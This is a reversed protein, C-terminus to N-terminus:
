ARVSPSRSVSAVAAQSCATRRKGLSGPGLRSNALSARMAAATPRYSHITSRRWRDASPAQRYSPRNVFRAASTSVHCCTGAAASRITRFQTPAVKQAQAAQAEAPESNSRGRQSASGDSSTGGSATRSGAEKPRRAWGAQFRPDSARRATRRARATRTRDRRATRADPDGFMKRTERRPHVTQRDDARHMVLFGRDVLGAALEELGAPQAAGALFRRVEARQDCVHQPALFPM